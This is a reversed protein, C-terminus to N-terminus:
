RSVVIAGLYRKDSVRLLDGTTLDLKFTGGASAETLLLATDGDAFTLPVYRAAESSLALRQRRAVVDVVILAYPPGNEMAASYAALTGRENLILDGARRYPLTPPPVVIEAGSPVDWLRLAFPGRGEAGELRAVLRGDPSAAAGCPCLPEGTLPVFQDDALSFTSVHHYVEFSAPAPLELPHAADYVLRTMGESLALPLLMQGAGPTSIPLQRLDSGDARAVYVASIGQANVEVWAVAQGDASAVWRVQQTEVGRRIFPHPQLTGDANARMIAGTREKEYLVYDGLLTFARGGEVNVVTSLGSLADLFYLRTMGSDPDDGVFVDLRATVGQRAGAPPVTLAALAILLGVLLAARKTV